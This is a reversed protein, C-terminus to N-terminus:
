NQKCTGLKQIQPQEDTTMDDVTYLQSAVPALEGPADDEIVEMSELTTPPEFASVSLGTDAAMAYSADADADADAVHTDGEMGGQPFEHIVEGAFLGRLNEKESGNSSEATSNGNGHGSIDFEESYVPSASLNSMPLTPGYTALAMADAAPVAQYVEVVELPMLVARGNVMNANMDTAESQGEQAHRYVQAQSTEEADGETFIEFDAPFATHQVKSNSKVTNSEEAPIVEESETDNSKPNTSQEPASDRVDPQDVDVNTGTTNVDDNSKTSIEAEEEDVDEMSADENEEGNSAPGSVMAEGSNLVTGEGKQQGPWSNPLLTRWMHWRSGDDREDFWGVHETRLTGNKAVLAKARTRNEHLLTEGAKRNGNNRGTRKESQPSSPNSVFIMNGSKHESISAPQVEEYGHRSM